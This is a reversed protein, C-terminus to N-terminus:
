GDWRQSIEKSSRFERRLRGSLDIVSIRFCNTSDSRPLAPGGQRGEKTALAQDPDRTFAAARGLGSLVKAEQLRPLLQQAELGLAASEFLFEFTFVAEVISIARAKRACQSLM